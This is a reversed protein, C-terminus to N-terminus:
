VLGEILDVTIRGADLDVQVVVEKIAPILVDRQNGEVSRVVYVENAGTYIIEVVHGLRQGGVTWVELGLIQHEYYDGEKLPLAEALPIQVL